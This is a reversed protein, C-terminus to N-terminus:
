PAVTIRYFGPPLRAGIRHTETLYRRFHTDVEDVRSGETLVLSSSLGAADVTALFELPGWPKATGPRASVPLAEVMVRRGDRTALVEIVAGRASVPVVDVQRRGIGTLSALDTEVGLGDAPGAKGAPVGGVLGVPPLDREPHLETESTKFTRAEADLLTRSPERRPARLAANRLTPLFLPRLDRLEAQQRLLEDAPGPQAIEIESLPVVRPTGPLGPAPARFLAAAGGVIGVAVVASVIWRNREPM